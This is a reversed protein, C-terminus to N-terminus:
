GQPTALLTARSIQWWLALGLPITAAVAGVIGMVGYGTAAFVVGSGFSGAASVLGILM